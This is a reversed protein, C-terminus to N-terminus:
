AISGAVRAVTALLAQMPRCGPRQRHAQFLLAIVLALEQREQQRRATQASVGVPTGVGPCMSCSASDPSRSERPAEAAM